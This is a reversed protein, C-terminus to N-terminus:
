KPGVSRAALSMGSIQLGQTLSKRPPDGASFGSAAALADGSVNTELSSRGPASTEPYRAIREDRKGLRDLQGLRHGRRPHRAPDLQHEACLVAPAAGLQLAGDALRESEEILMELWSLAQRSLRSTSRPARDSRTRRDRDPGTFCAPSSSRAPRVAPQAADARLDRSRGPIHHGAPRRRQLQGPRSLGSARRHPRAPSSPRSRSGRPPQDPRELRMATHVEAPLRYWFARFFAYLNSSPTTTRTTPRSSRASSRSFSPSRSWPRRRRRQRRRDRGRLSRGASGPRAGGARDAVVGRAPLITGLCGASRPRAPRKTRRGARLAEVFRASRAAATADGRALHALEHAVIARFEGQTLVRFLPLGILLARSRGWAVVGCCPLYTLRVQSPPKVGLRRGVSDITAFLHPADVRALVPGLRQRPGATDVTFWVGGLTAVVDSWDDIENRLWGRVVPVFGGCVLLVASGTFTVIWYLSALMRLMSNRWVLMIGSLPRAVQPQITAPQDAAGPPVDPGDSLAGGCRPCRLAATRRSRRSARHRDRVDPVM